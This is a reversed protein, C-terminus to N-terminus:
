RCIVGSVNDLTLVAASFSLQCFKTPEDSIQNSYIDSSGVFFGGCFCFALFLKKANNVGVILVELFKLM